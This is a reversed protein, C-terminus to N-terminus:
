DKFLYLNLRDASPNTSDKKIVVLREPDIFNVKMVGEIDKDTLPLIQLEKGNPVLYSFRNNNEVLVLQHNKKSFLLSIHCNSFTHDITNTPKPEFVISNDKNPVNNFTIVNNKDDLIYPGQTNNRPLNDIQTQPNLSNSGPIYNPDNLDARANYRPDNFHGDPDFWLQGADDYIVYWAKRKLFNGEDSEYIIKWFLPTTYFKNENTAPINIIPNNPDKALKANPM